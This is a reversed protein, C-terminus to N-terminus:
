AVKSRLVRLGITSIDVGDYFIVGQACEVLRLVAALLTSKGAGSRGVIGVSEGPNITFSLARLTFPLGKAYRLSVGCFELRARQPWLAHLEKDSEKMHDAEQELSDIYELIRDVAILGDEIMPYTGMMGRLMHLVELTNIMAYSMNGPDLSRRFLCILMVTLTTFAVSLTTLTGQTMVYCLM